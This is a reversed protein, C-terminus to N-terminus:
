PKVEWENSFEEPDMLINEGDGDVLCVIWAGDWIPRKYDADAPWPTFYYRGGSESVEDPWNDAGDSINFQEAMMGPSKKQFEVKAM